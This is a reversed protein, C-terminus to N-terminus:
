DGQLVLGSLSRVKKLVNHDLHYGVLDKWNSSSSVLRKIVQIDNDDFRTLDYADLSRDVLSLSKQVDPGALRTGLKRNEDDSLDVLGTEIRRYDQIKENNAPDDSLSQERLSERHKIGDAVAARLRVCLDDSNM